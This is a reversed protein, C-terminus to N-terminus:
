SDSREAQEREYKERLAEIVVAAEKQCLKYDYFDWLDYNELNVLVEKTGM